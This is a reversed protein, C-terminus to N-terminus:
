APRRSGPRNSTDCPSGALDPALADPSYYAIPAHKDLLRPFARLVEAADAAPLIARVAALQYMWFTTVADSYKDIHGSRTAFRRLTKRMRSLALDVTACEQLYVWGVRLHDAHHFATNQLDGREFARALEADTM